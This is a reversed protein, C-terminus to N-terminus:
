RHRSRVITWTLYAGLLAAALFGFFFFGGMLQEWGAPHYVLMVVSLGVVFAGALIGLVLRNVLRELSSLLPEFGIPRMGVELGGRELEGLLRRLRLPLDIGLQATDVAAHAARGLWRSPSYRRLMLRRAYPVLVSTLNFTPDIQTVLGEEMVVTKLLLALNSPLQLRHRRVIVLTDSIVPGLSLEGLPLGYYRSLLHELDQRLLARDVRRRAVGLDLFADVLQEADQSTIAVLLSILQDQTKDDVSGVMGFDILGIRGDAELFLNGPHPDAHFFGDEFVMKLIIAAAKEAMARRDSDAGNTTAAETVKVGRIRELTLVRPTSLDWFIRPIHITEDGAFNEAIREASRGERIYDMEARLTQGFEQAIGVVDYDEAMEWRHAAASALNLLIELDEEVQEMVGPRRVKVIVETGDALTAAHAQGISAAAIPNPDFSAFLTSVSAGLEDEIVQQITKADVPPAADQLKALEQQYEPPLLDPRTSVIQGLKIFTTGLEELVTRLHEAQSHPADRHAQGSLSKHFPIWRELGLVGVLYGLGHRVLAGAIQRYRAYHSRKPARARVARRSALAM